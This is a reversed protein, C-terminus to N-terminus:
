SDVDTEGQAPSIAQNRARMAAVRCRASCYKAHSRRGTLPGTLFVNGCHDCTGLKAGQMAAMAVEMSMFTTLDYCALLMRLAGGGGGLDFKPM